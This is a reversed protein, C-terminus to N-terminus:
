IERAARLASGAERGIAEAEQASGPWPVIRDIRRLNSGDPEALVAVLHMSGGESRAHAGFPVRCDAGVSSMVGRECAVAIRTSPDGLPALTECTELDDRLCEIGLAGQGPAPVVLEPDLTESARAELGLRALGAGALVIADLEGADLKRLRTDVNGRLPVIQLDPRAARLQVARRLSSTGVRAGGPLTAFTSTARSVLVDRADVRPPVCAIAFRDSVTAPVDKFSHVAFHARGVLIAEEIEKTFLGKGGIETLPVDAVRDGSTV